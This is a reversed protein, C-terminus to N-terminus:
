LGGRVAASVAAEVIAKLAETDTKGKYGTVIGVGDVEIGEVQSEWIFSTASVKWKSANSNEVEVTITRCGCAAFWALALCALAFMIGCAKDGIEKARKGDM